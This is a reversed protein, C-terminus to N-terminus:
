APAFAPIMVAQCGTTHFFPMSLSPLNRRRPPIRNRRRKAADFSPARSARFRVRWSRPALIAIPASRAKPSARPARRISSRRMTMPSRSRCHSAGDRCCISWAGVEGIVNRAQRRHPARGGRERPQCLGARAGPLQASARVAAGAARSRRIGVKAGSNTLGINATGARDVMCEVADRDRRRASTRFVGGAMGAPQADRHRRSRGQKVGIKSCSKPSPSRPARWVKMPPGSTASLRPIDKRRPRPGSRFLSACRRRPTRGFACAARRPRRVGGNRLALGAPSCPTPRRWASRPFVALM